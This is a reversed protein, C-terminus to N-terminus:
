LMATTIKLFCFTMIFIFVNKLHNIAKTKDTSLFMGNLKCWESLNQLAMQLNQGIYDQTEGIMYLTTNDAYLHSSVNNTYTPLDNICM